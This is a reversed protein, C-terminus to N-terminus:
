EKPLYLANLIKILVKAECPTIHLVSRQHETIRSLEFEGTSPNVGYSLTADDDGNSVNGRTSSWDNVLENALCDRILQERSTVKTAM